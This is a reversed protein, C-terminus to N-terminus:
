AVRLTFKVESNDGGCPFPFFGGLIYVCIKCIYLIYKYVYIKFHTNFATISSQLHIAPPCLGLSGCLVPPPCRPGLASLAM